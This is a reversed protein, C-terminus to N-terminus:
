AFTNKADTFEKKAFDLVEKGNKDDLFQFLELRGQLDKLGDQAMKQLDKLMENINNDQM